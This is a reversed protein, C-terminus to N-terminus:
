CPRYQDRDPNGRYNKRKKSPLKSPSPALSRSSSLSLSLPRDIANQLNQLTRLPPRAALPLFPRSCLTPNIPRCLSVFHNLKVALTSGQVHSITICQKKNNNQKKQRKKRKSLCYTGNKKLICLIM